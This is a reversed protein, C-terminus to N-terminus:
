AVELVGSWRTNALAAAAAFNTGDSNSLEIVGASALATRLTRVNQASLAQSTGVTLSLPLTVSVIGAATVTGASFVGRVLLTKGVLAYAASVAGATVNTLTPTYATWAVGLAALDSADVKSGAQIAV